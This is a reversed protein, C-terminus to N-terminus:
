PGVQVRRPKACYVEPFLLKLQSYLLSVDKGSCARAPRFPSQRSARVCAHV